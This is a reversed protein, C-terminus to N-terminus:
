DLITQWLGGTVRKIMISHSIQNKKDYYGFNFHSFIHFEDAEEDSSKDHAKQSKIIEGLTKYHEQLEQYLEKFREEGNNKDPHYKLALRKYMTNLTKMDSPVDNIEFFKLAENQNRTKM